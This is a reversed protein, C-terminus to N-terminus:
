DTGFGFRRIVCNFNWAQIRGADEGLQGLGVTVVYFHKWKPNKVLRPEVEIRGNDTQKIEYEESYEISSNVKEGFRVKWLTYQEM